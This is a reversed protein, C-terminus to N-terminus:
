TPFQDWVSPLDAISNVVWDPAPTDPFSRGRAVWCTHMGAARAGAIDTKPNDGIYVAEEPPSGVAELAVTFARPEPKWCGIEASIVIRGPSMWRELGLAAIKARQNQVGGNTLLGLDFRAACAAVVDPAILEAYQGLEAQLSQWVDRGDWGVLRGVRECFEDRPRHGRQDFELLRDVDDKGLEFATLFGRMAGRHDFLTDDLDFIIAGMVPDDGAAILLDRAFDCEDVM